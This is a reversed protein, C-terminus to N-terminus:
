GISFRFPTSLPKKKLDSFVLFDGGEGNESRWKRYDSNFLHEAGPNPVIGSAYPPSYDWFGLPQPVLPLRDQFDYSDRVYVGVEKIVILHKGPTRPNPVVEGAVVCRLNFENLAAAMDNPNAMESFSSEVARQQIYDRNQNPVPAALNGFSERQRSLKRHRKLMEVIEVQAKDNFCAPVPREPTRVVLEDYKAKAKPFTLVWSDMKITTTDKPAKPADKPDFDEGVVRPPAAFWKEQLRAGNHWGFHRMVSPVRPLLEFTDSPRPGWDPDVEDFGTSGPLREVPSPAEDSVDAVYIDRDGFVLDHRDSSFAIKSGSPSWSADLDLTANDQILDMKEDGDSSNMVWINSGSTADQMTSADKCSIPGDYAIKSGDPSWSPNQSSGYQRRTGGGGTCVIDHEARTLNIPGLGTAFMKFVCSGGARPTECGVRTYAIEFGNPSWAPDYEENDPTNTLNKQGSGDRNM